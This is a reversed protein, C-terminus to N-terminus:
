AGLEDLFARALRMKKHDTNWEIIENNEQYFKVCEQAKHIYDLIDEHIYQKDGDLARIWPVENIAM